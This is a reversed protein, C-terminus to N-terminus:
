QQRSGPHSCRRSRRGLDYRARAPAAGVLAGAKTAALAWPPRSTILPYRPISLATLFHRHHLSPGRYDNVWPYPASTAEQEEIEEDQSSGHSHLLMM